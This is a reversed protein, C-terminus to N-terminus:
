CTVDRRAFRWWGLLAFVAIHAVCILAVSRMEALPPLLAMTDPDFATPIVETAKFFQTTFLYPKVQELWDFPLSGGIWITMTLGLAAFGPALGNDFFSALMFALAASCFVALALLAYAALLWTMAEGETLIVVKGDTLAQWEWLKGRGFLAWGGGYALLMTLGSLSLTYLAATVFKASWIAFRSRPRVLITRLTGTAGESGLIEGAVLPALFPLLQAISKLIFECILAANLPSGTVTFDQLQRDARHSVFDPPNLKFGLLVLGVLAAIAAYIVYPTLRRYLKALEWRILM